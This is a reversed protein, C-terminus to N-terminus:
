YAKNDGLSDNDNEEKYDNDPQYFRVFGNKDSGTSKSRKVQVFIFM